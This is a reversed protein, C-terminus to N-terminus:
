CKTCSCPPVERGKKDSLGLAIAAVTSSKGSGNPGVVLNLAPGPEFSCDEYPLFNQM